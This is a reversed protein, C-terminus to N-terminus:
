PLSKRKEEDGAEGAPLDAERVGPVRVQVVDTRYWARCVRVADAAAGDCITGGSTAMAGPPCFM